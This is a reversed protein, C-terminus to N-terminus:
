RPVSVLLHRPWDQRSGGDQPTNFIRKLNLESLKAAHHNPMQLYTDGASLPQYETISNRVTKYPLRGPGHTPPPLNPSSDYAAIMIFRRRTQPVGYDKLDLVSEAISISDLDGLAKKFRRYTSFGPVKILGPVNEVVVYRPRIESIVRSFELLLTREAIRSKSTSYDRRQKTYPQCPACGVFLLDKSKVKGIESIIDAKEVDRIDKALFKAPFNNAEYTKRFSEQIDIGLVVSVGANSSGRSFGGAGCFFDVAIM